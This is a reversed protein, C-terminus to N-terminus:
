EGNRGPARIYSSTRQRLDLILHSLESAARELDLAASLQNHTWTLVGEADKASTTTESLAEGIADRVDGAVQRNTRPMDLLREGTRRADDASISIEKLKDEWRASRTALDALDRRIEELLRAAGDIVKRTKQASRGISRAARGSEDALKRVEEAVVQFGRGHVGARSAEITANLALLNTQNAISRIAEAFGEVENAAEKLEGVEQAGQRITGSIQKLKEVTQGSSERLEGADSSMAQTSEMTDKAAEWARDIGEILRDISAIADDLRASARKTGERAKTSAQDVREAAAKLAGGTGELRRASNAAEESRRDIPQLVQTLAMAAAFHPALFGFLRADGPRYLTSDSHRISWMGVIRKQYYLPVLIESGPTEGEALLLDGGSLSNSVVPKGRRIAEAIMGTAIPFRPRESTGTDVITQMEEADADYLAFGMQEWPILQRTEAQIHDFQNTLDIEGAVSSAIGHILRLEEANVATRLLFHMVLGSLLLVGGWIAAPLVPLGATALRVAGVALGAGAFSVMAEWRITTGTAVTSGATQLKHELYFSGNVLLPLLALAFVLQPLNSSALAQAGSAGGIASYLLGVTGVGAVAHGMNHLVTRFRLKRFFSDGLLLGLAVTIVGIAWGLLLIAVWAITFLFSAFGKGPLQIGLLRSLAAALVLVALELGLDGQRLGGVGTLQFAAAGVFSALAAILIWHIWIGRVEHQKDALRGRGNSSSYRRALSFRALAV